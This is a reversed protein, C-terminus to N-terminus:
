QKTINKILLIIIFLINPLENDWRKESSYKNKKDSTITTHTGYYDNKTIM